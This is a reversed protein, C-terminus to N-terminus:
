SACPLKPHAGAGPKPKAGPYAEVFARLRGVTVQFADLQFSSVTAPWKPDNLRNYTGGEVMPSACCSQAPAGCQQNDACTVPGANASPTTDVSSTCGAMLLAFM